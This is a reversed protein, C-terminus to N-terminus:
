YFAIEGFFLDNGLCSRGRECSCDQWFDIYFAPQRDPVNNMQEEFMEGETPSSSTEYKNSRIV